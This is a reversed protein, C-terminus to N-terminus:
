ISVMWSSWCPPLGKNGDHDVDSDVSFFFSRKIISHHLHLWLDSPGHVSGRYIRTFIFKHRPAGGAGWFIHWRGALAGLFCFDAFQRGNRLLARWGNLAM